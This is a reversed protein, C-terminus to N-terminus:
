LAKQYIQAARLLFRVNSRDWPTFRPLQMTDTSASAVGWHTSLAAKFNLTKLMDVHVDLYDSEYRGNPYAFYRVEDDIIRELREKGNAIESRADTDNLSALIPHSVTHAGIEVGQKHLERVEATTLMLNTPLQGVKAAIRAVYAQRIDPNLHKIANLIVTIAAKKHQETRCELVGGDFETLDITPDPWNRVSEIISDNWMLGGDLFGTAVFVTAPIGYKKMIPLAVYLNDAYGDDFTVCVARLPLTGSEMRNMADDLSLVNFLRALLSMQM